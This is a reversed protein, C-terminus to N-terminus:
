FVRELLPIVAPVTIVVGEIPIDKNAPWVIRIERQWGFRFQKKFLEDGIYNDVVHSEHLSVGGFAYKKGRLLEHEGLVAAFQRLNNIRVCADAEFEERMRQRMNPTIEYSGCYLYANAAIKIKTAEPIVLDIVKGEPMDAGVAKALPHHRDFKITTPGVNWHTVLEDQDSRAGDLGDPIRFGAATGIKVVGKELLADVYRANLFKYMKTPPKKLRTLM